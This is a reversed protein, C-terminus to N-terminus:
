EAAEADERWFDSAATIAELAKEVQRLKDALEGVKQCHANSLRNDDDDDFTLDILDWGVDRVLKWVEILQDAINAPLATNVASETITIETAMTM